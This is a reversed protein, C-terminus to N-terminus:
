QPKAGQTPSPPQMESPLHPVTGVNTNGGAALFTAMAEARQRVAEPSAPDKAIDRFESTAKLTAGAHFDAYALIERAMPHWANSSDTLPQLLTQIDARSSTDVTAWAARIRAVPALLENGNTAVKKYIDVAEPVDGSAYLANAKDLLALQAYGGPADEALKSFTTAAAGAQGQQLLQEAIAYTQAATVTQRKEYVRWLQFAAAAIVVLAAGAIIYDGYDKWLKEFRERRVDDEVERFIDTV